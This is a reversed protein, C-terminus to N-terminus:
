ITMMWKLTWKNAQNKKNNFLFSSVLVVAVAVMLVLLSDIRKGSKLVWPKNTNTFKKRNKSKMNKKKKENKTWHIQALEIFFQFCMNDVWNPMKSSIASHDTPWRLPWIQYQNVLSPSTEPWLVSVVTLTPWCDQLQQWPYGTTLDSSTRGASLWVYQRNRWM